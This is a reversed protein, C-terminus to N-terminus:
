NENRFKQYLRLGGPKLPYVSKMKLVTKIALCYDLLIQVERITIEEAGEITNIAEQLLEDDTDQITELYTKFEKEM